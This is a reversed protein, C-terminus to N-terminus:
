PFGPTTSFVEVGACAWGEQGREPGEIIRLKVYVLTDFRYPTCRAHSTALLRCLTGGRVSFGPKAAMADLFTGLTPAYREPHLSRDKGGRVLEDRSHSGRLWRLEAADNKEQESILLRVAPSDSILRTELTLNSTVWPQDSNCGALLFAAALGIRPSKALM